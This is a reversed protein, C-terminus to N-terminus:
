LSSLEARDAPMRGVGLRGVWRYCPALGRFQGPQDALQLGHSLGFVLKALVLPSQELQQWCIPAPRGAFPDQTPEAPICLAIDTGTDPRFLSTRCTRHSRVPTM